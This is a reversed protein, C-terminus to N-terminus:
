KLREISNSIASDPTSAGALEPQINVTAAALPELPVAEPHQATFNNNRSANLKEFFFKLPRFVCYGVFFVSLIGFNSLLDILIGFISSNSKNKKSGGKDDAGFNKGM